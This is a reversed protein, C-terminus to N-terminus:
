GLSQPLVTWESLDLQEEPAFTAKGAVSLDLRGVEQAQLQVNVMEALMLMKREMNGSTGLMVFLRDEIVLALNLKDAVFVATTKSLLGNQQLCSLIEQLNEVRVADEDALMDGTKFSQPRIGYIYLAKGSYADANRIITLTQSLVLSGSEHPLVLANDAETVQLVVKNPLVRRVSVDAVYPLASLVRNEARSVSFRFLNTNKRIGSAQIIEQKTYISLSGKVEIADIYFFASFSFLIGAAVALMLLLATFRRRRYRQRQPSINQKKRAKAM